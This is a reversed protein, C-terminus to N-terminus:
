TVFLLSLVPMGDQGPEGKVGPAGGEGQLM